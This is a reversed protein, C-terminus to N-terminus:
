GRLMHACAVVPLVDGEGKHAGTGSICKGSGAIASIGNADPAALTFTDTSRQIGNGFYTTITDTGTLPFGTGSVTTRQIAAGAGNVSDKAEYAAVPKLPARGCPSGIGIRAASAVM